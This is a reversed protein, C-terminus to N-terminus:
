STYPKRTVPTQTRQAQPEHKAEAAYPDIEADTNVHVRATRVVEVDQGVDQFSPRCGNRVCM